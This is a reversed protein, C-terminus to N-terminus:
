SLGQETSFFYNLSSLHSGKGRGHGMLCSYSPLVPSSGLAAELIHSGVDTPWPDPALYNRMLLVFHVPSPTTKCLHSSSHVILDYVTVDNTFPLPSFEPVGFAEM